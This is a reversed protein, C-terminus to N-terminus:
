RCNTLAGPHRAPPARRRVAGTPGGASFSRAVRTCIPGGPQGVLIDSEFSRSIRRSNVLAACPKAERSMVLCLRAHPPFGLPTASVGSAPFERVSSRLVARGDAGRCNAAHPWRRSTADGAGARSSAKSCPFPGRWRRLRQRNWFPCQQNYKRQRLDVPCLRDGALRNRMPGQAVRSPRPFVTPM